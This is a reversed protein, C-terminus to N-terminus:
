GHRRHARKARWRHQSQSAMVTLPARPVDGKDRYWRNEWVQVEHVTNGQAEWAEVDAKLKARKAALKKNASAHM